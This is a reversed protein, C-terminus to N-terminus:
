KTAAAGRDVKVIQAIGEWGPGILKMEAGVRVVVSGVHVDTGSVTGQASVLVLVEPASPIYLEYDKKTNGFHVPDPQVVEAKEITGLTRGAVDKVPGLTTFGAIAQSETPQVLFSISVPVTDVRAETARLGVFVAVAIVVVLVLIDVINVKGFLRGRDDIIRAMAGGM